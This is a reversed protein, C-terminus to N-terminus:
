REIVDRQGQRKAIGNSWTLFRSRLSHSVLARKVPPLRLVAQRPLTVSADWVQSLKPLRM